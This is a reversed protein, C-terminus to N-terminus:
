LAEIILIKTYDKKIIKVLNRDILPQIEFDFHYDIDSHWYNDDKLTLRKEKNMIELGHILQETITM